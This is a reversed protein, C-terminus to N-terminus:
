KVSAAAEAIRSLAKELLPTALAFSMRLSNVAGFASGQVTVVDFKELLYQTFDDGSKIAKGGASRGVLDDVELFAYFAGRPKVSLKVGPMREVAGSVLDLRKQFEACMMKPFAYDDDYARAAAYQAISCVNSTFQSQHVTMADIVPKPGAAYGVRWGTMAYAKSFANVCLISDRLDPALTLLSEHKFGDFTIYEYVEDLVIMMESRNKLSRFAEAIARLDDASYCAGTPNSPSNLIILKTKATVAKVMAEPSMRYGDKAATEVIVPEGGVLRVMEPYSTWYPAPIIVEDGPNLLVAFAAGLAQKGGNTVIIEKPSYDVGQDRKLKKSITERLPLIGQVAVYRTFNKELAEVAAKKVHAPTDFDPEGVTLSIVDRGEAKLAQARESAALTPSPPIVAISRSLSVM